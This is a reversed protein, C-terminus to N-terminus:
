AWPITGLRSGIVPAALRVLESLEARIRGPARVKIQATTM